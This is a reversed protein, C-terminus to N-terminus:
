TDGKSHSNDKVDDYNNYNSNLFGGTLDGLTVSNKDPFYYSLQTDIDTVGSKSPFHYYSRKSHDFYM